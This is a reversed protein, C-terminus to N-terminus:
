LIMCFLANKSIIMLKKTIMKLEYVYSLCELSYQLNKGRHNIRKCNQIQELLISEAKSLAQQKSIKAEKLMKPQDVIRRYFNAISINTSIALLNNPQNKDWLEKAKLYL